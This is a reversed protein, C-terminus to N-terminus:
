TDAETQETFCSWIQCKAGTVHALKPPSPRLEFVYHVTICQQWTKLQKNFKIGILICDVTLLRNLGKEEPASTM